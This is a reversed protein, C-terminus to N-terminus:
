IDKLIGLVESPELTGGKAKLYESLDAVKEGDVMKGDVLEMRLYHLGEAEDFNDVNVINPHNLRFGERAEERFRELSRGDELLEPNVLKIAFRQGLAEHEAEYVEGMGGKGLFRVIRYPGFTQGETFHSPSASEEM